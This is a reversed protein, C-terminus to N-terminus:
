VTKWDTSKKAKDEKQGPACASIVLASLIVIAIYRNM